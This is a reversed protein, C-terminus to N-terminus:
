LLWHSYKDVGKDGFVPTEKKIGKHEPMMGKLAATHQPVAEQIYLFLLDSLRSFPCFWVM